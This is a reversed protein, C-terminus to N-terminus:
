KGEQRELVITPNFPLVITGGTSDVIWMSIFVTHCGIPTQRHRGHVRGARALSTPLHSLHKNGV